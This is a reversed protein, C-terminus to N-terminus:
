GAGPTRKLGPSPRLDLMAELQEIRRTNAAILDAIQKEQAERKTVNRIARAISESVGELANQEDKSPISGDPRPGVLVYGIPAEDDSSPVLQLRVPFLKDASEAEDEKYDQAELSSRWAEVEERTIGRTNLVEGNVIAATRISRVGREIRVLVEEILQQLSATERLDRICEPLDDRLLFLNRQFKKESWRQIREYAPTVM